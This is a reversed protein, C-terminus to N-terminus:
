LTPSLIVLKVQLQTVKTNRRSLWPKASAKPTPLQTIGVTILNPAITTFPLALILKGINTKIAIERLSVISIFITPTTEIQHPTHTDLLYSM